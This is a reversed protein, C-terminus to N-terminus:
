GAGKGVKFTSATTIGAKKIGLNGHKKPDESTNHNSEEGLEHDLAEIGEGELAILYEEEYDKEGQVLDGDPDEKDHEDGQDEGEAVLENDEIEENEAKIEDDDEEEIDNRRKIGLKVINERGEQEEGMAAMHNTQNPNAIYPEAIEPMNIYEFELKTVPYDGSLKLYATLNPLAMFETYPVIPKIRKQENISVGDRMQHAGFSIGESHESVENEGITKAIWQATNSEPSRFFLKTNYLSVMSRATANGYLQDIQSINQLGAVICGGYKRIEALAKPLAEIKNLSQKEDIIFWVRRKFNPKCSMLGNIAVNIWTTLLARLTERQEPNVVLFLFGRQEDDRIWERVSFPDDTEELFYLSKLYTTLNMRISAATKDAHIDVLAAAPTGRYFSQIEKLPLATTYSLLEKVSYKKMERLKRVTEAFLTRSSDAWFPDSLSQPIMSAALDDVQINNDCEKWMHWPKSRMDLPNLIIDTDPNYYKAVFDGTTDVIVAKQNRKRIQPILHNFANSKGAGTTGVMLIHQMESDKILPVGGLILDSAKKDARIKKALPKPDMYISGSIVDKKNLLLGRQYWILCILFMMGIFVFGMTYLNDKLTNEFQGALRIMYPDHVVDACRVQIERGNHDQYSQSKAHSKGLPIALKMKSVYYTKLYYKEQTSVDTWTKSAFFALSMFLSIVLTVSMVQKIMRINHLTVQGGQTMSKTMSQSPSTSM